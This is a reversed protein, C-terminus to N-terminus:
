LTDDVSKMKMLLIWEGSEAVTKDQSSFNHEMMQHYEADSKAHM